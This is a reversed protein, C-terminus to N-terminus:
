IDEVADVIIFKGSREFMEQVLLREHYPLSDFVNGFKAKAILDLDAKIKEKYVPKLKIVGFKTWDKSVGAISAAHKLNDVILSATIDKGLGYPKVKEKVRLTPGYEQFVIDVLTDRHERWMNLIDPPTMGERKSFAKIKLLIEVWSKIVKTDTEGRFSRSEITGLKSLPAANIAGYKVHDPHLVAKSFMGRNIFGLLKILADKVGECDCVPLCFLNSLRDPGSYRILINEMLIYTTLFNALTLYTENLMNVHVHVSTSISSTKFKFKQNCLDLEELAIEFDPLDMPAKLIYEVGWDRLSGDKDCNWYKLSPFDYPKITETEVEVGVDGLHRSGKYVGSQNLIEYITAQTM